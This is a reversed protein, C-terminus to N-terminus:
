DEGSRTRGHRGRPRVQSNQLEADANRIAGTAYPDAPVDHQVSAVTKTDHSIYIEYTIRDTGRLSISDSRVEVLQSGDPLKENLRYFSQVGTSDSLVAGTFARGEITGLLRYAAPTGTVQAYVTCQFSLVLAVIFIIIILIPLAKKNIIGNDVLHSTSTRGSASIDADADQSLHTKDGGQPDILLSATPCHRNGAKARSQQMKSAISWVARDTM